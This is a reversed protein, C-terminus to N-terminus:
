KSKARGRSVIWWKPPARTPFSGKQHPLLDGTGDPGLLETFMRELDADTVGRATALALLNGTLAFFVSADIWEGGRAPPGIVDAPVDHQGAILRLAEQTKGRQFVSAQGTFLRPTAQSAHLAIEESGISVVRRPVDLQRCLKTLARRADFPGEPSPSVLFRKLVFRKRSMAPVGTPTASQRWTIVAHHCTMPMLAGHCEAIKFGPAERRYDRKGVRWTM